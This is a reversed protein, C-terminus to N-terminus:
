AHGYSVAVESTNRTSLNLADVGWFVGRITEEDVNKLNEAKRRKETFVHTPRSFHRVTLLISLCDHWMLVNERRGGERTDEQWKRGRGKRTKLTVELM